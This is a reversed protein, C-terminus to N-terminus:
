CWFSLVMLLLFIHCLTILISMRIMEISNGGSCPGTDNTNTCHTKSQWAFDMMPQDYSWIRNADVIPFIRMVQFKFPWWPYQFSVLFILVFSMNKIKKYGFQKFVTNSVFIDAVYLRSVLKAKVRNQETV